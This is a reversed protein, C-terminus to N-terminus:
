SPNADHLPLGIQKEILDAAGAVGSCNRFSDGIEVAKERYSGNSLVADVTQRITEARSDALRKGAGLEEVRNAVGGQETTQPFLVLPVGFYLSESASNMGCHSVFVDAKELVAVQDVFSHLQIHEPVNEFASIDTDKGVSVVVQCDSDRFAEVCNEYFDPHRNQVIQRTM